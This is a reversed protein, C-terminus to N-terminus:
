LSIKFNDKRLSCNQFYRKSTAIKSFPQQNFALSKVVLLKSYYKYQKFIAEESCFTQPNNQSECLYNPQFQTKFWLMFGQWSEPRDVSGPSAKSILFIICLSFCRVTFFAREFGYCERYIVQNGIAQYSIGYSVSISLFLMQHGIACLFYFDFMMIGQPLYISDNKHILGHLLFFFSFKCYYSFHMVIFFSFLFASCYYQLFPDQPQISWNNILLINSSSM